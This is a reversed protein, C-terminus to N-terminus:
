RSRVKKKKKKLDKSLKNCHQKQKIYQKKPKRAQPIKGGLDPVLGESGANSPLTM